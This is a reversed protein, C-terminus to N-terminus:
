CGQDSSTSTAKLRTKLAIMESDITTTTPM